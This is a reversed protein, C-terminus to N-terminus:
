RWLITLMFRILYTFPNIVSAKQLFSPLFETPILGGALYMMILTFILTALGTTVPSKLIYIFLTIVFAAIVVVPIALFFAKISVPPSAIFVAALSIIYIGYIFVSVSLMEATLCGATGLGSSQMRLRMVPNQCKYIYAVVFVSLFMMLILGSAILKQKISFESLVEFNEYKFHETRTLVYTLNRADLSNELSAATEDSIQLTANTFHLAFYAGQATGLINASSQLLDNILHGEMTKEDRFIVDMGRSEEPGGFLEDIFGSPVYVLCAIDGRNLADIGAERTEYEILEASERFSDMGTVINLAFENQTSDGEISYGIKVTGLTSDHSLLRRGLSVLIGATCLFILTYLLISPIYHLGTLLGTKFTRRFQGKNM